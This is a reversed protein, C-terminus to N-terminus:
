FEVEYWGNGFTAYKGVHIYEGLFLFPLFEEVEGEYTVRGVFGSLDHPLGRRTSFRRARKWHINCKKIRIKEAREGFGKFDIELPEGCHFYSLANVRDRLRKVIQHFEPVRSIKGESKIVVPTLFHLTIEDGKISKARKEFDPFTLFFFKNKILNKDSSYIEEREGKFEDLSFIKLRSFTGRNKGLGLFGLEKFCVVFYPLYDLAKGVLVLRFKFVDEKTYERKEELPPKIIFPRVSERNKSLRKSWEPVFTEFVQTYPCKLKLQCIFCDQKPEYCIIRRFSYGFAGRLCTGPNQPLVIKDEPQISIELVGVRFNDLMRRREGQSHTLFRRVGM